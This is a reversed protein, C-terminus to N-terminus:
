SLNASALVQGGASVVRAQRLGSAPQSVSAAWAGKGQSPWFSGVTVPRGHDPVVQCRLEGQLAPDDVYMVLWTPNGGYVTVQGVVHSGSRLYAVELPASAQYSAGGGPSSSGTVGHGVVAGVGFVVLVAAAALSLALRPQGALWTRWRAPHKRLGLREFVRAEFGLPPEVMPAVQLLEDAAASLEEVEAACRSCRDLHSLAAVRQKGALSGLALEVLDEEVSACEPNLSESV